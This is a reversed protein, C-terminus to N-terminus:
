IDSCTSEECGSCICQLLLQTDLLRYEQPVSKDPMYVVVPPLDFLRGCVKCVAHDHRSLNNDFRDPGDSFPIRLIEGQASMESLNRYVTGMSIRPLEMKALHYITEATPHTRGATEFAQLIAKRQITM